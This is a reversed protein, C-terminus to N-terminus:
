LEQENEIDLLAPMVPNGEEAIAKYKKAYDEKTVQRSRAIAFANAPVNDTIVSGAATFADHGVEVPAILSNNSGICAGDRVTTKHKTGGNYNCTITGAGINVNSGISADGLYTLHKAFSHDGLISRDVEVFHGVVSQEGIVSIKDQGEAHLYAFPGVVAGAKIHANKIVCHSQITVNDEIVVNDLITFGLISCNKGIRVNESFSVGAAVFSGAGIETTLDLLVFQPVAFRVGQKMLYSILESRKIHEAAWLEKFTNIGRITDYSANVTEIRLGYNSALAIIDTLYLEGSIRSPKIENIAQQLFERRVLYIGANICCADGLDDTYDRAEVIKISSGEKIVRGYAHNPENYHATVFTITANSEVHRQYLNKIIEQDILPTDGNLILIHEAQWHHQTCAVAHGTGRQEEQHVFNVSYNHKKNVTEMVQEKQHGVVLTMPINLSALLTTPYLIMEQGCIKENLKTRNTNFRTSKGAALVIAQANAIM